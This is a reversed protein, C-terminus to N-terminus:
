VCERERVLVVCPSCSSAGFVPFSQRKPFRTWSGCLKCVEILQFVPLHGHVSSCPPLSLFPLLSLCHCGSVLYLLSNDSTDSISEHCLNGMADEEEVKGGTGGM